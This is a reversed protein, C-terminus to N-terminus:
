SSSNIEHMNKKLCEDSEYGLMKLAADNIFTCQYNRDIGYIGEVTSELLQELKKNIVFINGLNRAVIFLLSSVVVGLILVILPKEKDFATDFGPLSTFRLAWDRGYVYISNFKRFFNGGSFNNKNSKAHSSYMLNEDSTNRTDFVEFEINGFKDRLIGNMLDNMRFPAYVYGIIAKKREDPTTALNKKDYLPLYMLFGAQINGGMEQVLTVKGSVTTRAFDRSTKMAKKRVPESFMDYGFAKQNVDNFPEIYIISTYINREGEPWVRYNSFGESRIKNIHKELDEKRIVKSFGIGLIGPFDEDIKLNDVYNKWGNRTVNDSTYFLGLAGRLVQEYSLMRDKIAKSIENTQFEFRDRIEEDISNKTSYWAYVTITLSTILTIWGILM